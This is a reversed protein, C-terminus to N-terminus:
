KCYLGSRSLNIFLSPNQLYFLVRKKLYFNLDPDEKFKNITNNMKSLKSLSLIAHSIKLPYQLQIHNKIMKRKWSRYLNIM